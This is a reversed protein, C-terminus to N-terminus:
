SLKLWTLSLVARNKARSLKVTQRPRLRL